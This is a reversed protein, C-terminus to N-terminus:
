MKKGYWWRAAAMAVAQVLLVGMTLFCPPLMQAFLFYLMLAILAFATAIYAALAAKGIIFQGREDKLTAEAEAAAGPNRRQRVSDVARFALLTGGLGCLFGSLAMGQHSTEPLLLQLVVGAPLMLAGLITLVNKWRRSKMMIM